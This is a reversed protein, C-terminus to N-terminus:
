FTQCNICLSVIVFVAIMQGLKMKVNNVTILQEVDFDDNSL